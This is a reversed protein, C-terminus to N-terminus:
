LARLLEEVLEGTINMGYEDNIANGLKVIIAARTKPSLEHMRFVDILEKM